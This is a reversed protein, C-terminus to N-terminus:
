RTRQRETFHIAAVPVGSIRALERELVPRMSHLQDHWAPDPIEIHVTGCDYAHLRTRAALARGCAVPWATQLRDLEPLNELSRGLTQKLLDRMSQM